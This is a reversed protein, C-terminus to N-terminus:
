YRPPTRRPWHGNHCISCRAKVICL